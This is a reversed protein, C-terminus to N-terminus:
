NIPCHVTLSDNYDYKQVDLVHPSLLPFYVIVAPSYNLCTNPKTYYEQLKMDTSLTGFFLNKVRYNRVFQIQFQFLKECNECVALFLKKCCFFFCFMHKMHPSKFFPVPSAQSEVDYIRTRFNPSSHSSRTGRTM